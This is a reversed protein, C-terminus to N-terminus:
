KGVYSELDEMFSKKIKEHDHNIKGFEIARNEYEILCSPNKLIMRLTQDIKKIDDICIAINNNKLYRFGSHEKWCIAMVACGSMMCDIIKTSFSLRTLLKYKLEFSEVHLAIDSESYRKKLEEQTISKHVLSNVGDNLIANQKDTLINGTYIDLVIKVSDRNIEKLVKSIKALTKWRGCYIGGAYILRIPRNVTEKKRVKSFDGSKKLIKMNCHLSRKYEDKQEETMTYILDYQKFTKRINKRLILRNLWYLPSIRFQKLGYNDDSVYSIMPVNCVNKVMRDIALLEHSAYCPAFILDPNFQTIFDRLEVTNWKAMKWIFSRIIYFIERRHGRFFNYFKKNEAEPLTLSNVANGKENGPYTNFELIKGPKGKRLISKIMMSDTMQYYSKCLFNSPSGPNCYIQAFEYGTGSFINSLVNGGNTDDRWVEASIILIRM